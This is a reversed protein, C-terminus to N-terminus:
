YRATLNLVVANITYDDAEYMKKTANKDKFRYLLGTELWPNIDYIVGTNVRFINYFKEPGNDQYDLTNWDLDLVARLRNRMQQEMGLRVLTDLYGPSAGAEYSTSRYARSLEFSFRTRERMQYGIRTQAVWTSEDEYAVGNRDTDNDHRIDAYGIKAEGSLKSFPSFRAGIYYLDQRNDQSTQSSWAPGSIMNVGDNQEPYEVDRYQYQCFVRTKPTIGYFLAIGYTVDDVDEWEDFGRAYREMFTTYSGEVGLRRAFNFGVAADLTNNWRETSIGLNYENLSGHPDETNVYSEDLRAYLGSPATYALALYPNHRDYNSETYDAYAALDVEYGIELTNEPSSEYVLAVSPSLTYIFDSKENDEEWFINDNYEGQLTVKPNVDFKGIRMGDGAGWVTGATLLLVSMWVVQGLRGAVHNKMKISM